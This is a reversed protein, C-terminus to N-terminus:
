KWVDYETGIDSILINSSHDSEHQHVIAYLGELEEDFTKIKLKNELVLEQGQVHVKSFRKVMFHRNPLSLCGELSDIQEGIGKYQCNLFYRYNEYKIVYLRWPIGVQVASLGIGNSKDCLDSMELCTRYISLLNDTPCDIIQTPLQSVPVIQM